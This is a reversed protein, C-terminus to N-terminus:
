QGYNELELWEIGTFGEADIAEALERKVLVVRFFSRPRFLSRTPDVKKEDIVLMKVKNITEKDITSWRPASKTMDLCDVPDTPHIISYDRSIIKKKHNAIAVPLFELNTSVRTRLFAVLRASGVILMSINQLSDILVTNNPFEHNMHFTADSSFRSRQSVGKVLTWREEVGKLEDLVCANPVIKTDWVLYKAKVNVGM